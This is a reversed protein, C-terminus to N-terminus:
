DLSIAPILLCIIILDPPIHTLWETMDSGKCGWPSYGVLSRQGCLFKELCSCQLPNGHGEAPLNKVMQTVLSAWSPHYSNRFLHSLSVFPAIKCSRRSLKSSFSANSYFCSSLRPPPAEWEWPLTTWASPLTVASEQPCLLSPCLAATLWIRGRYGPASDSRPPLTKPSTSFLTRGRGASPSAASQTNEGWTLARLIAQEWRSPHHPSKYSHNLSPTTLHHVNKQNAPLSTLWSWESEPEM